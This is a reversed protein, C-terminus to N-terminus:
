DGKLTLIMLVEKYTRGDSEYEFYRDKKFGFKEYLKLPVFNNIEVSTYLNQNSYKNKFFKIFEKLAREGIGKNQYNYDIMFRSMSWGNISLDFDYLIFGVMVDNDYIGLSYFDDEYATQVLSLLNSSVYVEQEAALKLNICDHVPAYLPTKYEFLGNWVKPKRCM